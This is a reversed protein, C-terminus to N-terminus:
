PEETDAIAVRHCPNSGIYEEHRTDNPQHPSESSLQISVDPANLRILRNGENLIVRLAFWHFIKWGTKSWM